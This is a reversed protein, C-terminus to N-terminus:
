ISKILNSPTTWWCHQRIMLINKTQFSPIGNPPYIYNGGKWVCYVYIYIYIMYIYIMHIYYIYLFLYIFLYIHIHIYIHVCDVAYESYLIYPYTEVLLYTIESPDVRQLFPSKNISWPIHYSWFSIENIRSPLAKFEHQTLHRPNSIEHFWCSHILPHPKKLVKKSHWTAKRIEPLGEGSGLSRVSASLFHMSKLYQWKSHSMTTWTHASRSLVLLAETKQTYARSEM